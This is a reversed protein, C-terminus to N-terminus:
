SSEPPSTSPPQTHSAQAAPFIISVQPTSPYALRQLRRKEAQRAKHNQHWQKIQDPSNRAYRDRKERNYASKSNLPTRPKAVLRATLQKSTEKVAKFAIGGCHTCHCRFKSKMELATFLSVQKCDLCLWKRTIRGLNSSM